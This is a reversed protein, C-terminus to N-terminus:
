PEERKEPTKEGTLWGEPIMVQVFGGGVDVVPVFINKFPLMFTAGKVHQIELFAGAGYDHVDKVRGLAKGAGDRVSLGILDVHYYTGEDEPPLASRPAYICIGKLAEAEERRTVGGVSVVFCNKGEARRKLRFVRGGEDTLPAYSFVAAPDETYSAFRAQGQVGHAGLFRGVCLLRPSSPSLPKQSDIV